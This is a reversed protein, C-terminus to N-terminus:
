KHVPTIKVTSLIKLFVDRLRFSDDVFPLELPRFQYGYAGETTLLFVWRECLSLSITNRVERTAYQGIRSSSEYGREWDDEFDSKPAILISFADGAYKDVGLRMTLCNRSGCQGFAKIVGYGSDVAVVKWSPPYSIEFGFSDNRYTKWDTTIPVTPNPTPIREEPLESTTMAINTWCGGFHSCGTDLTLLGDDKSYTDTINGTSDDRVSKCKHWGNPGLTKVVKESLQKAYDFASLDFEDSEFSRGANMWFM